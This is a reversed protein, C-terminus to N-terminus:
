GTIDMRLITIFFFLVVMFIIIGFVAINKSRRNEYFAKIDEDKKNLKM